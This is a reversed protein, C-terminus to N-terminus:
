ELDSPFLPGNELRKLLNDFEQSLDEDSRKLITPNSWVALNSINVFSGPMVGPGIREYYCELRSEIVQEAESHSQNWKRTYYDLLAEYLRSEGGFSLFHRHLKKWGPDMNKKGSPMQVTAPQDRMMDMQTGDLMRGNFVYVMNRRPPDGFMQFNQALMTAWGLRLVEPSIKRHWMKGQLANLGTCNWFVVYFILVLPVGDTVVRKVWFLFRRSRQKEARVQENTLCSEPRKLRGFHNWFISPVFPLWAIACVVGFKGVDLSLDIGVHFCLFFAVVGLRIRETWFPLFLLLPVLLEVVPTVRTIGEVLMPYNLIWQGFPRSYADLRLVYEMATGDFWTETLKAFGSTWYMICIQLILCATGVSCIEDPSGIGDESGVRRRRGLWSDVSWTRGLPIFMSWFLLVRLLTDASYLVLPNRVHVSVVLIWCVFTAVRSFWGIGLLVAVLALAIFITKQFVVTDSLYNLSFSDPSVQKALTANLFGLESYFEEAHQLLDVAVYFVLCSLAIRFIALSRVDCGFVREIRTKMGPSTHSDTRVVFDGSLPSVVRYQILREGVPNRSGNTLKGTGRCSWVM